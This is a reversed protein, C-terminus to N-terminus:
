LQREGESEILVQLWSSFTRWSKPLEEAVELWIDPPYEHWFLAFNEPTERAIVFAAIEQLRIDEGVPLYQSFLATEPNEFCDKYRDYIEELAYIEIGDLDKTGDYFIDCAGVELLFVRYEEPLRIEHQSEWGLLDKETYSRKGIFCHSEGSPFLIPNGNSKEIWERFQKCINYINLGVIM